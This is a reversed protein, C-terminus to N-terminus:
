IFTRDASPTAAKREIAGCQCHNFTIKFYLLPLGLLRSKFKMFLTARIIIPFCPIFFYINVFILRLHLIRPCLVLAIM